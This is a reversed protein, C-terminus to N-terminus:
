WCYGSIRLHRQSLGDRPINIGLQLWDSTALGVADVAVM